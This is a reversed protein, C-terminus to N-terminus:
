LDCHPILGATDVTESNHKCIVYIEQKKVKLMHKFLMYNSDKTQKKTQGLSQGKPTRPGYKIYDSTDNSKIKGNATRRRNTNDTRQERSDQKTQIFNNDLLM